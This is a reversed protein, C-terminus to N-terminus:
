VIWTKVAKLNCQGAMDNETESDEIDKVYHSVSQSGALLESM